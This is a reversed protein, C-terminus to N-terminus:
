ALRLVGEAGERNEKLPLPPQVCVFIVNPWSYDAGSQTSIKGNSKKAGVDGTRPNLIDFASVHTMYFNRLPAGTANSCLPYYFKTVTDTCVLFKPLSLTLLHSIDCKSALLHKLCIWDTNLKIISMWRITLQCSDFLYGSVLTLHSIAPELACSISTFHETVTDTKISRMRQDMKKKWSFNVKRALAFTSSSSFSM